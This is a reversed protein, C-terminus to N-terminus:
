PGIMGMLPQRLCPIQPLHQGSRCRIGGVVTQITSQVLFVENGFGYLIYFDTM